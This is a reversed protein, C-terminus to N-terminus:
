NIINSRLNIVKKQIARTQVITPIRELRTLSIDNQTHVPVSACYSCVHVDYITLVSIRAIFVSIRAIFVFIRVTFVFTGLNSGRTTQSYTVYM